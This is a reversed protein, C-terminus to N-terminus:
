MKNLRERRLVARSKTKGQIKDLNTNDSNNNNQSM